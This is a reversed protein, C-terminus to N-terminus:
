FRGKRERWANMRREIQQVVQDTLAPINMTPPQTEGPKWGHAATRRQPGFGAATAQAPSIGTAGTKALALPPRPTGAAGSPLPGDWRRAQRVVRDVLTQVREPIGATRFRARLFDEVSTMRKLVAALPSCRERTAGERRAKSLARAISPLGLSSSALTPQGAAAALGDGAGSVFRELVRDTSRSLASAQNARFWGSAALELIRATSPSTAPRHDPKRPPWLLPRAPEPASGAAERLVPHIALEIRPFHQESTLRWREEIPWGFIGPLALVLGPGFINEAARDHRRCLGQAWRTRREGVACAPMPRRWRRQLERWLPNGAPINARDNM